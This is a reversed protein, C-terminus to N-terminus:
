LSLAAIEIRAAAGLFLSPRCRHQGATRNSSEAVSRETPDPAEDARGLTTFNQGTELLWRVRDEFVLAFRWQEVPGSL